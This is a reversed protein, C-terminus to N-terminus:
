EETITPSEETFNMSESNLNASINELSQFREKRIETPDVVGSELYIKDRQAEKLETDAKSLPDQQWLSKFEIEWDLNAINGNLTKYIKGSKEKLILHIIKDLIPRIENEQFKSITDYYAMLDYQGATIVGQAQGMLRSKPIRSLGSLNDFIFDLLDKIGRTISTPVRLIEEDSNIAIMSQSSLISKIQSMLERVKAPDNTAIQPSKLIKFDMESIISTVSWLATDQAKVADLITRIVSVGIQKEPLYSRVLWSFRSEHLETGYVQIKPKHYDISLPDVTSQYLSFSEGGFSNIFKISNFSDPIPEIMKKSDLPVGEDIAFYLFGGQSYMRSNKILDLIRDRVKLEALRNEILRSIQDNTDNSVRINIWERTADEAPFDVINQIFGNSLYWNREQIASMASNGPKIHELKDRHTGRGSPQHIMSDYRKAITNNNTKKM